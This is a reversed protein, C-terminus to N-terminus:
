LNIKSFELVHVKGNEDKALRAQLGSCHTGGEKVHCYVILETKIPEISMDAVWKEYTLTGHVAKKQKVIREFDNKAQVVACDLAGQAFRIQREHEYVARQMEQVWMASKIAVMGLVAALSSLLLVMVLATGETQKGM